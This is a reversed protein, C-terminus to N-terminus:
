KKDKINNNYYNMIKIAVPASISGGHGANELFVCVAIEPKNTVEYGAFWAHTTRGPANEASGTKGYGTAGDIKFRATGGPENMVKYLGEQIVKLTAASIPLRHQSKPNMQEWNVTKRGIAKQMFHPQNWVGGNGLAAYYACVQIPTLLVEGQGISLNVKHGIIGVHKGYNKRYWKTDPFLGKRENPLDIGTRQALRNNLVFQKMDDLKLRLSLDYFFVDCSVKLADRVSLRGHGSHFWCKFFRNGIKMGGICNALETEPTIVKKELGLSATIPKFVSGPPYGAHIVRDMMPKLPNQMMSDWEERTVKRMFINPDFAPNSVYALIGGTKVDMVVAAGSYGTPFVSAAYEQLEKDITLVLSLGNEPKQILNSKFLNLSKGKADVQIIENGDKGRLLVEYYRELGGKGLRSNITYNEEKFRQYEDDNIRGMYGTFHNKILYQRTTEVKFTLSPYYNLDESIRSYLMPDINEQLLVDQYSRFRSEYIIKDIESPEIGFNAHLFRKSSALNKMKAPILYLNISPINVALPNYRRDYIEGRTAPISRLRVFNREAIQRYYDGKVIQLHFLSTALIFFMIVVLIKFLQSVPFKNQM